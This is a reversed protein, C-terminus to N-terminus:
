LKEEVEPHNVILQVPKIIINSTAVASGGEITNIASVTIGSVDINLYNGPNSKQGRNTMGSSLANDVTKEPDYNDFDDLTREMKSQKGEVMVSMSNVLSKSNNNIQNEGYFIDRQKEANMVKLDTVHETPHSGKMHITDKVPEPRPMLDPSQLRLGLAQRSAWPFRVTDDSLQLEGEATPKYQDNIFDSHYEEVANLSDPYSPGAPLAAGAGAQSLLCIFIFALGVLMLGTPKQTTDM